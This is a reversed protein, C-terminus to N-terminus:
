FRTVPIDGGFVECFVGFIGDETPRGRVTELMALAWHLTDVVKVSFSEKHPGVVFAFSSYRLCYQTTESKDIPFHSSNGSNKDSTLVSSFTM